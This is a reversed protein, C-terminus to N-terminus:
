SRTVRLERYNIPLMYSPLRKTLSHFAINKAQGSRTNVPLKIRGICYGGIYLKLWKTKRQM